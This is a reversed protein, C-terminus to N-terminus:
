VQRIINSRFLNVIRLVSKYHWGPTFLYSVPETSSKQGTYMEELPQRGEESVIQVTAFDSFFQTGILNLYSEPLIIEMEPPMFSLFKMEISKILKQPKVDFWSLVELLIRSQRYITKQETESLNMGRRLMSEFDILDMIFLSTIFSALEPNMANSSVVFGIKECCERMADTQTELTMWVSRQTAGLENMMSYEYKLQSTIDDVLTALVKLRQREIEAQELLTLSSIRKGEKPDSSSQDSEVALLMSLLNIMKNIPQHKHEPTHDMQDKMRRILIVPDM